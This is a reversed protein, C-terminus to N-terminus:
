HGGYGHQEIKCRDHKFIPNKKRWIKWPEWNWQLGAWINCSSRLCSYMDISMIEKLIDSNQATNLISFLAKGKEEDSFTVYIGPKEEEPEMGTVVCYQAAQEATVEGLLKGKTDMLWYTQGVQLAAVPQCETAQIEIGDPLRRRITVEDLYPRDALIREQAAFKNIFFLNEGITIQSADILEQASYRTDGVM